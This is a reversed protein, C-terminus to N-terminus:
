ANKVDVFRDKNEIKIDGKVLSVNSVNSIFLTCFIETKDNISILNLNPNISANFNIKNKIIIGEEHLYAETILNSLKICETREKIYDETKIVDIRKEYIIGFIILFVLFLFGVVSLLEISVQAKKINQLLM